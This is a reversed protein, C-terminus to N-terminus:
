KYAGIQGINIDVPMTKSLNEGILHLAKYTPSWQSNLTTGKPSKNFNYSDVVHINGSADKYYNARGLTNAMAYAKDNFSKKVMGLATGYPNVGLTEKKYPYDDYQLGSSQVRELINAADSALMKGLGYSEIPFDVQTNPNIQKM